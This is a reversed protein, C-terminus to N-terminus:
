ALAVTSAIASSATNDVGLELALGVHEEGQKFRPDGLAGLLVLPQRALEVSPLERFCHRFQGQCQPASFGFPGVQHQLESQM